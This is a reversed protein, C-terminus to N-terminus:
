LQKSAWRYVKHGDITEDTPEFGLHLLFRVAGDIQMDPISHLPVDAREAVKLVEQAAKRLAVPRRAKSTVTAWWRGDTGEYIGGLGLLAGDEEYALGIWYGPVPLGTLAVWDDARATRLM